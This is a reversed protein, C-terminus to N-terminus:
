GATPYVFALFLAWGATILFLLEAHLLRPGLGPLFWSQLASKARPEDPDLLADVSVVQPQPSRAMRALVVDVPGSVFVAPALAVLSPLAMVVISASTTNAPLLSRVAWFVIWLVTERAACVAVFRPTLGSGAGFSPGQAALVASEAPARCCGSVVGMVLVAFFSLESSSLQWVNALGVVILAAVLGCVIHLPLQRYFIAM